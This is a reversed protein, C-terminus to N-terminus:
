VRSGHTLCGLAAAVNVAVDHVRPAMAPTLPVLSRRQEADLTRSDGMRLLALKNFARQELITEWSFRIEEVYGGPLKVLAM